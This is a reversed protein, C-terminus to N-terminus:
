RKRVQDVVKNVIAVVRQEVSEAFPGPFNTYRMAGGGEYGGEKLVRLSPLYGFVHNSYGAVWVVDGPDKKLEKKLRLAYDVVVEGCIAVLTFDDGLQAAQIPFCSFQTEIKGHHELQDLLTQGHFREYKNSSAVMAEIQRRSPPAAFDLTAHDLAVQITGSLEKTNKTELATEVGNALARGHQEALELTRRPYPNQDASCGNIFLAVVGPHAQELYEQAFGPYDGCLKQFSLTTAHCAYGFMIAKLKGDSDEVRLVPVEHDVPGDPNPSNIYGGSTPLRRNMAFGARARSYVLRSPELEDLTKMVLRGIKAATERVYERSLAAYKADIGFRLIRDDRLEPGCHTHSANMLLAAPPIGHGNLHAEVGSRLEPTIGLLDTTVIVLRNGNVDQIALVKAFLDHVKGDSPSKRAAYGGMWVPKEPTIAISGAAIRWPLRQDAEASNIWVLVLLCCLPALVIHRAFESTKPQLM